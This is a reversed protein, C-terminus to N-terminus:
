PCDSWRGRGSDRAQQELDAYYDARSTCPPVRYARAFGEEILAANVLLNDVKVHALTRGYQDVPSAKCVELTVVHDDVLERNRLTAEWYYCESQEPTDIGIYRVKESGNVQITDGDYVYTVTVNRYTYLDDDDGPGTSVSNDSDCGILTILCFVVLLRMVRKM